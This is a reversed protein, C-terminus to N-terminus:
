LIHSIEHAIVFRSHNISPNSENEIFSKIQSPRLVCYYKKRMQFAHADTSSNSLFIINDAYPSFYSRIQSVIDLHIIQSKKIIRVRSQIIGAAVAVVAVVPLVLLVIAGSYILLNLAAFTTYVSIANLLFYAYASQSPLLFPSFNITFM